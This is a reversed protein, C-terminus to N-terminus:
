SGSKAVDISEVVDLFRYKLANCLGEIIDGCLAFVFVPLKTRSIVSLKAVNRSLLVTVPVPGLGAPLM